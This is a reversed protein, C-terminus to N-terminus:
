RGHYPCLIDVESTCICKAVGLRKAENHGIYNASRPDLQTKGGTSEAVFVTIEGTKTGKSAGFIRDWGDRYADNATRTKIEDGTIDNKSM